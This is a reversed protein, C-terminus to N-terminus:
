YFAFIYFYIFTLPDPPSDVNKFTGSKYMHKLFVDNSVGVCMCVCVGFVYMWVCAFYMTFM